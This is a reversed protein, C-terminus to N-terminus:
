GKKTVFNVCSRYMRVTEMERWREGDGELAPGHSRPPNALHHPPPPCHPLSVWGKMITWETEDQATNGFTLKYCGVAKERTLGWWGAGM